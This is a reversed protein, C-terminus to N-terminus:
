YQRHSMGKSLIEWKSAKMGRDAPLQERLEDFLDKMEKRRKREALKHSVRLEPSRSYPTAGDRLSKSGDPSPEHSHEETIDGSSANSISNPDGGRRIQRSPPRSRSRLSRVPGSSPEGQSLDDHRDAQFALSSMMSSQHPYPNNPDIPNINSHKHDENQMDALHHGHSPWAFEMSNSVRPSDAIAPSDGSAGGSSERLSRERHEGEEDVRHMSSVRRKVPPSEQDGNVGPGVLQPDIEESRRALESRDSSMKRKSGTPVDAHLHMQSPSLTGKRSQIIHHGNASHTHPNSVYPSAPRSANSSNGSHASSHAHLSPDTISGRRQSQLYELSVLPPMTSSFASDRRATHTSHTYEIATPSSPNTRRDLNHTNELIDDLGGGM